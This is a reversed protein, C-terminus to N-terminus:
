RAYGEVFRGLVFALAGFVMLVLMAALGSTRGLGGSIELLCAVPLLVLGIVQLMKGISRMGADYYPRGRGM